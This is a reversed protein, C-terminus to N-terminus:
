VQSDLVKRIRADSVPVATGLQQAWLGVRWEELLWRVERLRAGAPRGQPLAAVAQLYREQLDAYQGMLDADRRLGAADGLRERRRLMAQVYTPYRRLHQGAEAIFGRETLRALQARMDTVAPLQYIDVRGTLAKEAERQAALARLADDLTARVHAELDTAFAKQLAAFADADRVPPHADVAQRAVAALCDAIVAAADPYPTAALALKATMDLSDVIRKTLRPDTGLMLLRAVGLRHRAEAEDATGVVVLGVTSGEDDLCRHVTVEHGARKETVTPSVSGFTWTTQGTATLGASAAVENIARRFQGRLPAKLADLEKGRAQERGKPDLIRYTPRLHEPLPAWAERPVVIGVTSRIWRELADLLPEEGPPTSSLFERARDPAPVLHVRLNKPLGRILTTVIEERNGPVNWSFDSDDVRNLTEVPIDVTLGDEPSGPEFHYNLTFTLGGDGSDHWESPFDSVDVERAILSPDFDLIAKNEQRKWWSDFHAGSVVDKGVRADYFDFLTHEDVVIDRRRAKHELERAEELRRANRRLFGHNSQWEGQVLAHRIFLERAVEPDVRGFNVLRDAVLPVGYLTVKEHAMVAARRRSWHPETYSRKVLHPALNEAWEPKISAVQRAWLRGTEVLEGAMLFQPNKRSQSSGPFIAFRTGRAGLYERPGPRKGKNQQGKPKEDRVDLAGIHSLLGSLLAQHIGDEDPSDAPQGLTLGIEKCVQRLQSEFEQWERVRLYHLHEARCMRRFASSSLERQQEKLYRWLNLWAMFDSREHKFRAHSQDARAQGAPDDPGPRERPDQLSMAAAIVIVERLCGRREAELVMRGLRPDIPLRALRGGLRTLRIRDKRGGLRPNGAASDPTTSTLAGLEELLDVGAAINRRDPPEVFPFDEISGLRLSAMQLIVSALNTRLIEPDTFEPRADYEEESYLRIAIGEAVRGCRGSRQNASAQSIPEIPLRQVKTRASYRSIRAVGTDIVYRIGPVTLSTEAVNTSLVIRRGTHSSFVRHQEAASLRSFLPIVELNGRRPDVKLASNLADSTDRIEREGPLFVLIDGPGEASLEKVADVIAETQDRVVVEGEDDEESLEMLPRYRIEVPFTRGSVEIIPAPSGDPEAFHAAFREPDITASTIIVKLDPRRPLLQKLYGLLFDINLSREHAEDIILTDYRRLDRDRQMEALLIGDTMLKVRSARSTRDTFRVQYGVLSGVGDGLGDAGLEEAIREAVSRAAIRRPQTHGILTGDAGGLGRGLELCIKPLQTTKGSGTEGAVIVVQHDRIAEAIEDRVASVPLDPYTIQLPESM